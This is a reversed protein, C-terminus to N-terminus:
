PRVGNGCFYAALFVLPANYDIAYENCAYAEPVDVYGRPGLGRPYSGDEARDNPGGVLLGPIPKGSAMALRHHPYRVYDAGLETIFSKSLSNVGLVYDLQYRAAMQYHDKAQIQYALILNVGHALANKNSAWEFESSRLAVRYGNALIHEGLKDAAELFARQLKERRQEPLGPTNLLAYIGLTSPNDWGIPAIEPFSSEYQGSVALYVSEGTLRYLEAYAWYQEDAVSGTRYAGTNGDSPWLIKNKQEFLFGAGRIAAQRLQKGYDPDVSQYVRAALAMTGTFIATAATGKEYIIRPAQDEHPSIMGPFNESNVKHFVGGDDDQMKLMWDLEYRVESLIDPLKGGSEPIDLNLNRYKEPMLEYALLLQAVTVGATPLYKGYDGADHWGGQVDRFEDPQEKLYGDTRHCSGHAVGSHVDNIAIGCRQLYYSRMAHYFLQVIVRDGIEFVYSEGFGPIVVKYHGPQIFGSFDGYYNLDGTNFDRIPGDLKGRFVIEESLPVVLHFTKQRLQGQNDTVILGKSEHTNFGWQNVKVPNVPFAIRLIQRAQIVELLAKVTIGNVNMVLEVGGARKPQYSVGGQLDTTLQEGGIEVPGQWPRGQYWLYIRQRMGTQCHAPTLIAPAIMSRRDSTLIAARWVAPNQWGEANGHWILQCSREGSGKGNDLGADLWIKEGNGITDRDFNRWPIRCELRGGTKDRQFIAEMGELKRGKTWLWSETGPALAIGFQYDDPGYSNRSAQHFGLYVELCDGQYINNGSWLNEGPTDDDVEAWLYLYSRDACILVRGSFETRGERLGKQIQSDSELILPLTAPWDKNEGDIVVTLQDSFVVPFREHEAYIPFSGIMVLIGLLFGMRWYRAMRKEGKGIM